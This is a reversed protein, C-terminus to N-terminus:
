VRSRTNVEIGYRRVKQILTSRAIGLLHAARRKNGGTHLLTAQIHRREVAELPDPPLDPSIPSLSQGLGTRDLGPLTLDVVVADLDVGQLDSAALSPTAQLTARYGAARFTQELARGREPDASVILFHLGSFSALSTEPRGGVLIPVTYRRPPVCLALSPSLPRPLALPMFFPRGCLGPSERGDWARRM